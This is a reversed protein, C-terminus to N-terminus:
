NRVVSVVEKAAFKLFLAGLCNSSGLLLWECQDAVTGSCLMEAWPAAPLVRLAFLTPSDRPRGRLGEEARNM